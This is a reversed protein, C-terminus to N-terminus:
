LSLSNQLQSLLKDTAGLKKFSAPLPSTVCLKQHTMPHILAIQRSHLCVRRIPDESSGYREDGLVPCGANKCHVRIQHKRGTELQLRAYTYKASRRLVEFYTIAQKGDNPDHSIKVDFSPLEKLMCEWRGRDEKLQGELIAFYERELDHKEFMKDLKDRTQTGRAFILVGSTERDIRHVAFIQDTQYHERLIGLAHRKTSPADLPVSLLDEPKDIAILYRDEFLINVNFAKKPHFSDISELVQGKELFLGDNIFAKGDLLFRGGRLWHQLTRRSSQPFLHRLADIARVREPVIYEM